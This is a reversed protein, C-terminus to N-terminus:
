KKQIQNILSTEVLKISRDIDLEMQVRAAKEDAFKVILANEVLLVYNNILQNDLKQDKLFDILESDTKSEVNLGFNILIYEKYLETMQFYFFKCDISENKILKKLDILKALIKQLFIQKQPLKKLFKKIFFIATILIVLFIMLICIFFLKTKWFPLYWPGYIELDLGLNEM